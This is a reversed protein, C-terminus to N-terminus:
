ICWNSFNVRIRMSRTCKCIFPPNRQSACVCTFCKQCDKHFEKKKFRLNISISRLNMSITLTHKVKRHHIWVHKKGVSLETGARQKVWIMKGGFM